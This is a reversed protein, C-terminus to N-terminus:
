DNRHAALINKTNLKFHGHRVVTSDYLYLILIAVDESGPQLRWSVCGM